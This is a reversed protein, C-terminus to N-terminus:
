VPISVKDKKTLFGVTIQAINTTLSSGIFRVRFTGDYVASYGTRSSEEDGFWLTKYSYTSINNELDSQLSEIKSILDSHSSGIIHGTIVIHRSGFDSGFDYPDDKGPVFELNSRIPPLEERGVIGEPALKFGYTAWDVDDYKVEWTLSM